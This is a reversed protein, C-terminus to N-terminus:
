NLFGLNWFYMDILKMVPYNFGHSKIDEKIEFFELRNSRYFNVLSIYSNPGFYKTIRRLPDNGVRKNWKDIGVLFFNDYAPICGFTGLLVKTILTNTPSINLESYICSLKRILDYIMRVEQSNRQISDFDISNISRYKNNILEHIIPANIKYDKQLLQSSGRYMGWSALYFSLNLTTFDISEPSDSNLLNQFVQYCHDWSRYRNNKDKDM